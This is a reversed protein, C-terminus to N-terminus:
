EAIRERLRPGLPLREFSRALGLTFGLGCIVYVLILLVLPLTPLIGLFPADAPRSMKTMLFLFLEGLGVGWAVSAFVPLLVPPLLIRRILGARLGRARMRAFDNEMDIRIRMIHGTLAMFLLFTFAGLGVGWLNGLASFVPSAAVQNIEAQANRTLAVQDLSALAATVAAADAGPIV